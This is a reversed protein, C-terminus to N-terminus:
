HPTGLMKQEYQAMVTLLVDETVGYRYHAEALEVANWGFPSWRVHDKVREPLVDFAAMEQESEPKRSETM